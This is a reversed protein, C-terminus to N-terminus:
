QSKPNPIQNPSEPNPNRIENELKLQPYWFKMVGWYLDDDVPVKALKKGKLDKLGDIWVGEASWKSNTDGDIFRAAPWRSSTFADFRPRLDEPLRRDFAIASDGPSPRVVFIPVGDVDFNLPRQDLDASEIAIPHSIGILSIPVDAPRDQQMPPLPYAPLIPVVPSNAPLDPPLSMVMTAPHLSLWQKWPLKSTAIPALFGAPKQGNPTQGTIGNIFQGLRGNYLLLANAPSSVVEVDRAKLDHNISFAVARNAYASWILLLRQDHDTQFVVPRWFLAAYPYAYDNDGFHLGVVYDGDSLRADAPQVFSPDEEIGSGMPQSAFRHAFLALVPGLGILFWARRKGAVVLAILAICLLISLSVLPWELRRALMILEVGHPYQAWGPETGYAVVSASLVALIILAVPLIV